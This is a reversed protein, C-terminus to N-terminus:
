EDLLSFLNALAQMGEENQHTYAHDEDFDNINRCIVVLRKIERLHDLEEYLFHDPGPRLTSTEM